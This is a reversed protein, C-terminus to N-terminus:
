YFFTQFQLQVTNKNFSGQEIILKQMQDVDGLEKPLRRFGGCNERDGSDLSTRGFKQYGLIIKKKWFSSHKTRKM